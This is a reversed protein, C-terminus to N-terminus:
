TSATRGIREPEKDCPFPAVAPSDVPDPLRAKRRKTWKQDFIWFTTRKIGPGKPLQAVHEFGIRTSSAQCPVIGTGYIAASIRRRLEKCGEPYVMKTSPKSQSEVSNVTLAGSSASSTPKAMELPTLIAGPPPTQGGQSM